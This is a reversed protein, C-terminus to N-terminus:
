TGHILVSRFRNWTNAARLANTAPPTYAIYFVIEESLTAIYVGYLRKTPPNEISIFVAPYGGRLVTRELKISEVGLQRAVAANDSDEVGAFIQKQANYGVDESIKSYFYGTDTPMHGIAPVARAQEPRMWFSYDHPIQPFTAREYEVPIAVELPLAKLEDNVAGVFDGFRIVKFDKPAASKVTTPQSTTCAQAILLAIPLSILRTKLYWTLVIGGQASSNIRRPGSSRVWRLAAVPKDEVLLIIPEDGLEETHASLAKSAQSLDVTKM